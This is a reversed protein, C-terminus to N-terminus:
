FLSSFSTLGRNEEAGSVKRAATFCRGLFGDLWDHVAGDHIAADAVHRALPDAGPRELAGPGLQSIVAEIQDARIEPHFQFGYANPGLRFATDPFLSGAALRVARAPAEFGHYHLFYAHDLGGLIGHGERGVPQVPRYGFAGRGDTRALVRGSGAAALVQAGFCLGLFPVMDRLCARALEILRNVYPPRSGALVDDLAGGIVVGAYGKPVAPVFEGRAPCCVDVRGGHAQLLDRVRNDGWEPRYAIYLHRPPM